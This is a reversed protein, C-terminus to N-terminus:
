SWHECHAGQVQLCAEICQEVSQRWQRDDLENGIVVAAENVAQELQQQTELKGSHYVVSRLCCWLFFDLPSLDLLCSPWLL